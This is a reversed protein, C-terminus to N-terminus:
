PLPQAVIFLRGWAENGNNEICTQLTLHDGQYVKFFLESATLREGTVLDEFDSTLSLPDFARYRYIATIRYTGAREDGFVVEIAQGLRL